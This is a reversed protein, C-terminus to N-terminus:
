ELSQAPSEGQTNVVEVRGVDMFWGSKQASNTEGWIKINMGVFQDLDVVSSTLAVTQSAGGERLLTHSGEGDVGGKQLYGEATQAFTSTDNVGFVDGNKIKTADTAVVATTDSVYKQKRLKNAGFGTLVGAAVAVLAFTIFLTKTKKNMATKSSTNPTVNGASEQHLLRQNQVMNMIEDVENKPQNPANLDLKQMLDM